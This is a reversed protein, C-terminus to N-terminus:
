NQSLDLGEIKVSDCVIIADLEARTISLEVMISCGNYLTSYIGFLKKAITYFWKLVGCLSTSYKVLLTESLCHRFYSYSRFATEVEM